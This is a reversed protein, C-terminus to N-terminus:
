KVIILRKVKSIISENQIRVFYVGQEVSTLDISILKSSANVPFSAVVQGNINYLLVDGAFAEQFAIKVNDNAPNPFLNFSMLEENIGAPTENNYRITFDDFYFGDRNEYIDSKLLFRVMINQGLYESLNIEEMVWTSQNGDYMPEEPQGGSWPSVGEGVKTYKGCQPIWNSGGDSSVQFQVYDYGAEIDWKAMFSIMAVEAETLDITDKFQFTRTANNPYNANPSDTFSHNPSFYDENTLGWSGEWHDLSNAADEFQITPGGFVKSITDRSQWLGNDLVLVYKVEDGYQIGSNLQYAIAGEQSEEIALNYVNEGGVTQIGELAEISVTLDGSRRGLRVISYNFDGEAEEIYSSVDLDEAVGFVLPLHAMTMNSFLMDICDGIIQSSPAWFDNKNVEPTQAFIGHDHYMYDDSDGSAPYLGSSKMNEYGSYKVMLGSIANFYSDDEAFEDSTGGYPYLMLGSYTHANMAFEIGWQEAIKKMNKTEPESFASVGPYTDNNQNSSVGTTGWKYSYNRNLDVGPNSSGINPNKNKRHMGGGNPNTSENQIYGDPNIMPVFFLELNDVLYTVEPNTGYNELMYWMFFLTESMSGPERAHHLSTYLVKPKELSEGPSNSMKVFYIPRGEHTLTDSVAAKETILNPYEQHMLDLMDLFEQYRYYGAYTGLQFHSPITPNYAVEEEECNTNRETPENIRSLYYDQVDEILIDVQFNAELATQIDSESLDSIIYTNEKVNAHDIALGLNSLTVMGQNDTWIKVRSYNNQAFSFTSILLFTILIQTTKMIKNAHTM